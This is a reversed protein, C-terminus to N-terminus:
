VHEWAMAASATLVLLKGTQGLFNRRDQDM